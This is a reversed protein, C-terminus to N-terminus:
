SHRWRAFPLLCHSQSQPASPRSRVQGGGCVAEVAGTHEGGDVLGSMFPVAHSPSSVSARPSVQLVHGLGFLPTLAFDSLHRQLLPFHGPRLYSAATTRIATPSPSNLPHPLPSAYLVSATAKFVSIAKAGAFRRAKAICNMARERQCVQV